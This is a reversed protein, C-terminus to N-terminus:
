VSPPEDQQLDAMTILGDELARAVLATKTPASRGVAAYRVRVRTIYSDVTRPSLFLRRAALSKSSCAFWAKLVATERPTLRPRNSTTDVAIAGSLGPPTYPESRAAARVAPILHDRGELKTVYSQAGMDICRMATHNDAKGSYVVVLRGVDLLRRLEEFGDVDAALGLDFIVVDADAGPGTWVNILRGHADILTIPPTATDCWTRVGDAIVDHDDIIVATVHPEM